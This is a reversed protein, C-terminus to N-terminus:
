HRTKKQSVTYLLEVLAQWFNSVQLTQNQTMIRTVPGAAQTHTTIKFLPLSQDDCQRDRMCTHCRWHDNDDTYSVSGGGKRVTYHICHLMNNNHMDIQLLQSRNKHVCHVDTAGYHVSNHEYLDQLMHLLIVHLKVQFCHFLFQSTWHTQLQISIRQHQRTWMAHTLFAKLFHQVASCMSSTNYWKRISDKM